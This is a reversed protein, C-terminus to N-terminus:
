VLVEEDLCKKVSVSILDSALADGSSTLVRIQISVIENHDFLFTDEQTLRTTITDEGITCDETRKVLIENDRQSYTIKVEKASSAIEAPVGFIHIPTTGKNM